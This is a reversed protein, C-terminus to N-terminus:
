RMPLQSRSFALCGVRKGKLQHTPQEQNGSQCVSRILSFEVLRVPKFMFCLRGNVETLRRVEISRRVAECWRFTYTIIKTDDPAKM